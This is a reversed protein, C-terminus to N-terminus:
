TADYGPASRAPASSRGSPRRRGGGRLIARRRALSGLSLSGM